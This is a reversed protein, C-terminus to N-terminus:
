KTVTVVYSGTIGTAEGGSGTLQFSFELENATLIQINLQKGDDVTIMRDSDGVWTWTGTANFLEGANTTTYSGDTFSLAFGPYNASVDRGDLLISGGSNLTWQGALVELALEQATPEDPTDDGGCALFAPLLLLAISLTITHHKLTKM